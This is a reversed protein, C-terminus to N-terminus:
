GRKGREETKRKGEGNVGKGIEEAKGYEDLGREGNREM